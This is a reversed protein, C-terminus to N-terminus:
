AYHAMLYTHLLIMYEKREKELNSPNIRLIQPEQTVPSRLAKFVCLTLSFLPPSFFFILRHLCKEIKSLLVSPRISLNMRSHGKCLNVFYM